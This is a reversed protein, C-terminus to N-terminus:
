ALTGIICTRGCYDIQIRTEIMPETHFCKRRRIDSTCSTGSRNIEEFLSNYSSLRNILADGVM